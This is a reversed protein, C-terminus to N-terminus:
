QKVFNFTGERSETGEQKYNGEFSSETFKGTLTIRGDFTDTECSLEKDTTLDGCDFYHEINSYFYQHPVQKSNKSDFDPSSGMGVMFQEFSNDLIVDIWKGLTEKKPSNLEIQGEYFGIPNFSFSQCVKQPVLDIIVQPNNFENEKPQFDLTITVKGEVQVKLRGTLEVEKQDLKMNLNELPSASLTVKSAKETGGNDWILTTESGRCLMSPHADLSYLIKPPAPSTALISWLGVLLVVGLLVCNIIYLQPKKM